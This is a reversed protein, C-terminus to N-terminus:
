FELRLGFQIQRASFGETSRIVGFFDEDGRLPGTPPPQNLNTNPGNLIPTNTINFFEARFQAKFSEYIAFNKTVGLNLRYTSPSRLSNRELNGFRGAPAPRFAAFNLFPPSSTNGTYPDGILDVRIGGNARVDFALGSQARFIGNLQWGGILADLVGAIDTGFRRGRGIPIDYVTAFSFVHPFDIRSTANPEVFNIGRDAVADFAGEGNDKTKSYTYAARYQWGAAFRRDLQIQLSDYSSEGNDDRVNANGGLNPYCNGSTVGNPCSVNTGTEVVRGNLNYYLILNRGRTGVYGVSLATNNTM